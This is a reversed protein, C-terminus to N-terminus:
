YSGAAAVPRAWRSLKREGADELGGSSRQCVIIAYKFIPLLLHPLAYREM